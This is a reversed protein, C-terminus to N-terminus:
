FLLHSFFSSKQAPILINRLSFEIPFFSDVVDGQYLVVFTRGDVFMSFDVTEDESSISKDQSLTLAGM